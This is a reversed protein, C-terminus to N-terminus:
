RLAVLNTADTGTALVRRIRLPYMIGAQLQTLDVTDGSLMTVRVNGTTGVYLARTAWPLDAQDDPTIAEAESAPANLGASYTSFKDKM